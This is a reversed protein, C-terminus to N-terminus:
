SKRLYNKYDWSGLCRGAINVASLAATICLASAAATQMAVYKVRPANNKLLWQAYSGVDKDCRYQQYRINSWTEYNKKDDLVM